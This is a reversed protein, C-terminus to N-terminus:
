VPSPIAWPLLRPDTGQFRQTRAEKEDCRISFFEKELLREQCAPFCYSIHFFFLFVGRTLFLFLIIFSPFAPSRLNWQSGTAPAAVTSTCPAPPLRHLLLASSGQGEGARETWEEDLFLGNSLVLHYELHRGKEVQCIVRLSYSISNQMITHLNFWNFVWWLQRSVYSTRAYGSTRFHGNGLTPPSVSTYSNPEQPCFHVTRKFFQQFTICHASGM